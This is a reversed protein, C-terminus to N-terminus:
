TELIGAQSAGERNERNRPERHRNAPGPQLYLRPRRTGRGLREPHWRGRMKIVKSIMISDM